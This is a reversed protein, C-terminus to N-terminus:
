NQFESDNIEKKIISLCYPCMVTDAPIRRGCIPCRIFTRTRFINRETERQKMVKSALYLSGAIILLALGLITTKYRLILINDVEARIGAIEIIYTSLIWGVAHWAIFLSLLKSIKKSSM